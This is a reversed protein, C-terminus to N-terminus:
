TFAGVWDGLEVDREIVGRQWRIRSAASLQHVYPGIM